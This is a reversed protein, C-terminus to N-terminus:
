RLGEKMDDITTCSHGTSSSVSSPLSSSATWSNSSSDSDIHRLSSGSGASVYDPPLNCVVFPPLPPVDGSAFSATQSAFPRTPQEYMFHSPMSGFSHASPPLTGLDNSNNAARADSGPVVSYAVRLSFAMGEAGNTPMASTEAMGSHAFLTCSATSVHTTNSRGMSSSSPSWGVAPSPDSHHYQHHFRSPQQQQGEYNADPVTLSRTHRGYSNAHLQLSQAHMYSGSHSHQGYHADHLADSARLHGASPTINSMPHHDPAATGHFTHDNTSGTVGGVLFGHVGSTTPTVTIETPQRPNTKTKDLTRTNRGHGGERRRNGRGKDSPSDLDDPGISHLSSSQRELPQGDDLSPTDDQNKSETKRESRTTHRSGGHGRPGRSGVNSPRRRRHRGTPTEGTDHNISSDHNNDSRNGPYGNSLSFYTTSRVAGTIAWGGGPSDSSQTSGRRNSPGTEGDEADQPLEEGSSSRWDTSDNSGSGNSAM